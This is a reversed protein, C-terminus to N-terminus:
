EFFLDQSDLKMSMQTKIKAKVNKKKLTTQLNPLKVNILNKDSSLNQSNKNDDNLTHSFNFSKIIKKEM